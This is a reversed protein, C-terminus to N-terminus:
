RLRSPSLFESFADEERIFRSTRPAVADIPTLAGPKFRWQSLAVIAASDLSPSGTGQRGLRVRCATKVHVRIVFM